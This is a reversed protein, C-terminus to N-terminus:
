KRFYGLVNGLNLSSSLSPPFCRKNEEQSIMGGKDTERTPLFSGSCNGPRQWVECSGSQHKRKDFVAVSM